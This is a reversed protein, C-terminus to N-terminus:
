KKPTCIMDGKRAFFAASLIGGGAGVGEVESGGMLQFRYDNEWINNRVIYEVNFRKFESSGVSPCWLPEVIDVLLPLNVRNFPEIHVSNNM